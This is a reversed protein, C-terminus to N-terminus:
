LTALLLPPFSSSLEVDAANTSKASLVVFGVSGWVSMFIGLMLIQKYRRLPTKV